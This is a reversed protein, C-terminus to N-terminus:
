EVMQLVLAGDDLVNTDGNTFWAKEIAFFECNNTDFVTVNDDLQEETLVLLLNLLERNTLM